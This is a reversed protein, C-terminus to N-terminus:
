FRIREVHTCKGTNEDVTFLAGMVTVSGTATEFRGSGHNVFRDIIIESKVGLVSDQVGSFGLDTIYGTGKPLIQEDATQM